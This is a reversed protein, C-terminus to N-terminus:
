GPAFYIAAVGTPVLDKLTLDVRLAEGPRFTEENFRLLYAQALLSLSDDLTQGVAPEWAAALADYGAQNPHLVDDPGFLAPESMASFVDVLRVDEAVAIGPLAANVAEIPHEADPAFVRFNPPITALVPISRNAKVLQVMARLHSAITGADVGHALGYGPSQHPALDEVNARVVSLVRFVLITSSTRGRTAPV